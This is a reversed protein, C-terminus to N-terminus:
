HKEILQKDYKVCELAVPQYPVGTAATLNLYRVEVMYTGTELRKRIHWLEKRRKDTFGTGVSFTNSGKRCVLSGLTGKPTGDLAKEETYGIVQYYDTKRPKAKLLNKSRKFEYPAKPNRIIIGEYGHGIFYSLWDKVTEESSWHYKVMKVKRFSTTAFIRELNFMRLMQSDGSVIDFVHYETMQSIESKVTRNPNVIGSIIAFPTGHKYLEGDLIITENKSVTIANLEDNIHPVMAIVHGGRSFLQINSRTIVAKCRIGDLKPQVMFSDGWKKYQDDLPTALMIGQRKGM